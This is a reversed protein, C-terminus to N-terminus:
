PQGVSGFWVPFRAVCYATVAVIWALILIPVGVVYISSEVNATEPEFLKGVVFALIVAQAVEYASFLGVREYAAALVSVCVAWGIVVAVIEACFNEAQKRSNSM